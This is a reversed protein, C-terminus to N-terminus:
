FSFKLGAAAGFNTGNYGVGAGLTVNSNLAYDVGASAGLVIAAGAVGTSSATVTAGVTIDSTFDYTAGAAGGYAGTSVNYNGNVIAVLGNDAYQVGGQVVGAGFGAVGNAVYQVGVTFPGTAYAVGAEIGVGTTGASGVVYTGKAGVTFGAVEVSAGGAATGTTLGAATAIYGAGVKVTAGSVDFSGAIAVDISGDGDVGAGLQFGGFEPSAYTVSYIATTLLPAATFPAYLGLSADAFTLGKTATDEIEDGINPFGPAGPVAVDHEDKGGVAGAKFNGLASNYGIVIELTESKDAVIKVSVDSGNDLTKAASFTANFDGGIGYQTGAAATGGQNYFGFITANGTATVTFGAVMPAMPAAPIDGAVAVGSMAVLASTALLIKKMIKDRLKILMMAWKKTGIIWFQEGCAELGFIENGYRILIYLHFEM